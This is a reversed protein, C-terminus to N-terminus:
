CMPMSQVQWVLRSLSEDSQYFQPPLELHFPALKLFLLHNSHLPFCTFPPRFFWDQAVHLDEIFKEQSADKVRNLHPVSRLHDSRFSQPRILIRFIERNYAYARKSMLCRMANQSLTEHKLSQVRVRAEFHATAWVYDWLSSSEPALAFEFSESRM